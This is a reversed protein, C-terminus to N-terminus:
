SHFFCSFVSISPPFSSSIIFAFFPFHLFIVFVLISNVPSYDLFFCCFVLLFHFYLGVTRQSWNYLFFIKCMKRRKSNVAQYYKCVSLARYAELILGYMNRKRETREEEILLVLFSDPFSLLNTEMIWDSCFKQCLSGMTTIKQLIFIINISISLVSLSHLLQNTYRIPCSLKMIM